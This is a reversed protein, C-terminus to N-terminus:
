TVVESVARTVHSRQDSRRKKDDQNEDIGRSVMKECEAIRQRETERM